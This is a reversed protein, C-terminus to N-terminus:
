LLIDFYRAGHLVRYIHVGDELAKYFIVYQGVPFTRVGTRLEDRARGLDPHLALMRVAADIEDLLRDAAAVNDLAIYSWIGVLDARATRSRVIRPM